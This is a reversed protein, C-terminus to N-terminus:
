EAANEADEGDKSRVLAAHGGAALVKEKIEQSIQPNEKLFLRAKEKGQGLQL